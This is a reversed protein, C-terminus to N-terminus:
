PITKKKKAGHEDEIAVPITKKKVYPWSRRVKWNHLDGEEEKEEGWFHIKMPAMFLQFRSFGVCDDDVPANDHSKELLEGAFSTRM